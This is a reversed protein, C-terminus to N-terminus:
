CSNFGGGNWRVYEPVVTVPVSLIKDEPLSVSTSGWSNHRLFESLLWRVVVAGVLAYIPWDDWKGVVM